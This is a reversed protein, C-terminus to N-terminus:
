PTWNQPCASRLCADQTPHVSRLLPALADLAFLVYAVAQADCCLTQVRGFFLSDNVDDPQYGSVNIRARTTVQNNAPSRLSSSTRSRMPQM